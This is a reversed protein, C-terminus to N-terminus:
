PAVFAVVGGAVDTGPAAHFSEWEARVDRVVLLVRYTSGPGDPEVRVVDDLDWMEADGGDATVYFASPSTPADARYYYWRHRVTEVLVFGPDWPSTYAETMCDSRLFYTWGEVFPVSVADTVPPGWQDVLIFRQQPIAPNGVDGPTADRREVAVVELRTVRTNDNSNPGLLRRTHRITLNRTVDVAIDTRLSARFRVACAFRDALGWTAARTQGDMAILHDITRAALWADIEEKRWTPGAGLGPLRAAFAALAPEDLVAPIASSLLLTSDPVVWLFEQTLFGDADFSPPPVALPRLNREVDDVGYLGSDYDLAVSWTVDLEAPQPARALLTVRVTDGPAAEPPEVLVAYPRVKSDLGLHMEEDPFGEGCGALLRAALLLLMAHRLSRM